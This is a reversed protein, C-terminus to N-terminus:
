RGGFPTNTDYFTPRVKKRKQPQKVEPIKELNGFSQSVQKLMRETTEDFKIFALELPHTNKAM